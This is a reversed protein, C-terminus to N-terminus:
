VPLNCVRWWLGGHQTKAGAWSNKIVNALRGKGQLRILLQEDKATPM